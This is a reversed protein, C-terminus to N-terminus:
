DGQHKTEPDFLVADGRNILAQATKKPLNLPDPKAKFSQSVASSVRYTTDNVITVKM